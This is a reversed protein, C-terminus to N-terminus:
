KFHNILWNSYGGILNYAQFNHKRLKKTVAKSFIGITCLVIIIKDIPLEGLHMEVKDRSINISGPINGMSFAVNSRVDLLIYSETELKSMDELSIELQEPDYIM